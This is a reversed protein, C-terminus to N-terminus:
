LPFASYQKYYDRMFRIIDIRDKGLPDIGERRALALAVTENWDDLNVLYGEDDVEIRAGECEIVPM